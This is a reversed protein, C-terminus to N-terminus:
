DRHTHTHTHDSERVEVGRGRRAVREGEKESGGRGNNKERRGGGERGRRAGVSLESNQTVMVDPLVLARLLKHRHVLDVPMRPIVVLGQVVVDHQHFQGVGHSDIFIHTGDGQGLAARSCPVHADDRAPAVNDSVPTHSPSPAPPANTFSVLM